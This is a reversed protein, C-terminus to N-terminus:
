GTDLEKTVAGTIFQICNYVSTVTSLAQSTM